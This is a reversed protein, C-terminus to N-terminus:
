LTRVGLQALEAVTTTPNHLSDLPDETTVPEGLAAETHTTDFTKPYALEYIFCEVRDLLRTLQPREHKWKAVQWAFQEVGLYRVDRFPEVVSGLTPARAGGAVHYTEGNTALFLLKAIARAADRETVLDVPTSASGPLAPLIGTRVLELAVRFASPHELAGSEVADLVISPRFVVLPLRDLHSRVLLEAEYKSQQYGNQFGSDHELDSELVLGARKGAVFATSVHAVRRLLPASEAFAILNEAAIVNVGRSAELPKSFSTTAAAHVVIDVSERLRARQREGIGFGPETVDGCLATVQRMSVDPPLVTRIRDRAAHPSNSRVLLTLESGSRILEEAVCRGLRGTAGTLLIRAGALM